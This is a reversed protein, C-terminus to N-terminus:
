PVRPRANGTEQLAKQTELYSPCDLLACAGRATLLIATGLGLFCGLFVILILSGRRPTGSVRSAELSRWAATVAAVMAVLALALILASNTM